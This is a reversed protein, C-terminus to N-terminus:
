CTTWKFEVKDVEDLPPPNCTIPLKQLYGGIAVWWRDCMVQWGDGVM